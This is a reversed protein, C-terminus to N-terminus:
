ASSERSSWSPRQRRRSITDTLTYLSLLIRRRIVGPLGLLADRDIIIDAAETGPVM